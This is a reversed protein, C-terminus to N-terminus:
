VVYRTFCPYIIDLWVKGESIAGFKRYDRELGNIRGLSIKYVWGVIGRKVSGIFMVAKENPTVVM